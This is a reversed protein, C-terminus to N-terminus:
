FKLEEETKKDFRFQRSGVSFKRGDFIIISSPTIKCECRESVAIPFIVIEDKDEDAYYDCAVECLDEMEILQYNARAKQFGTKLREFGEHTKELSKVHEAIEAFVHYRIYITLETRPETYQLVVEGRKGAKVTIEGGNGVGIYFNKSM